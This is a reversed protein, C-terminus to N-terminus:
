LSPDGDINIAELNPTDDGEVSTEEQSSYDTSEEGSGDEENLGQEFDSLGNLEQEPIFYLEDNEPM